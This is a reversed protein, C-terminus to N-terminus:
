ERSAARANGLQLLYNGRAGNFVLNQQAMAVGLQEPGGFYSLEVRAAGLSLGLVDFDAVTRVNSLAQRIASWDQPGNFVVDAVIRSRRSYDVAAAEKWDQALLQAAGDATAAFNSNAYTVSEVQRRGESLVILQAANGDPTARAIVIEEVEYREALPALQEWGLAAVGGRGLVPQDAADGFPLIVPVLGQAISPQTWARAWESEPDYVNNMTPIVLVPKAQAEAFRIGNGRLLAQVEVPNFNYTVEALYRTTSRRENAIQMSLILRELMAADLQPQQDWATPPTIRRYLRQFATPRGSALAIDRAANASGATADVQIGPVTYLAADAAYLQAPVLALFLGAMLGILNGIRKM